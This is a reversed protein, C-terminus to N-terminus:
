VMGNPKRQDSSEREDVVELIEGDDGIIYRPEHRHTDDYKPKEDVDYEDNKRKEYQGDHNEQQFLRSIMPVVWWMLPVFMLWSFRGNFMSWLFVLLVITGILGMWNFRRNSQWGWM